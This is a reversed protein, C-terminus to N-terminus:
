ANKLGGEPTRRKEAATVNLAPGRILAALAEPTTVPLSCTQGQCLMAAPAASRPLDARPLGTPWCAGTWGCCPSLSPDSGRRAVHPSRPISRPDALPGDIVIAGGREMIDAASCFCRAAASARRAPRLFRPRPADGAERWRPEDTLHWLKAFAEALLGVGSPTAGDHAHRAEGRCPSRSRATPAVGGEGDGFLDLAKAALPARRRSRRSHREGRVADAGGPGDRTITSCGARGSRGDRWSHPLRGDGRLTEIVFDFGRARGRALQPVGFVASARALAAIMLGNWDALVKDDRGPAPACAHAFLHSTIRRARSRPRCGRPTIRRLVQARGIATRAARRLRGQLPREGGLAADIEADTWVYFPRGRRGPRRRALRRLWRRGADRADALRGDGARTRCLASRAVAHVSALLELIQANDYLMKEFHPVLWEADTSYRAYGGGLHDYIGGASLAELLARLAEGFAPDRRRFMENWFFRFIPANPFKPADGIGGHDRDVARM